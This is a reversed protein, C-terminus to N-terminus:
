SWLNKSHMHTHSNTSLTYGTKVSFYQLKTSELLEVVGIQFENLESFQIYSHISLSYFTVRVLYRLRAWSENQRKTPKFHLLTKECVKADKRFKFYVPLNKRFFTNFKPFDSLFVGFFPLKFEIFRAQIFELFFPCFTNMQFYRLKLDHDYNQNIIRLKKFSFFLGFTMKIREQIVLDICKFIEDNREWRLGSWLVRYKMIKGLEKPLDQLLRPDGDPPAHQFVEGPLCGPTM